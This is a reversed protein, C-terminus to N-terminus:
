NIKHLGAGGQRHHQLKGPYNPTQSVPHTGTYTLPKQYREGLTRSTEGIYEEGCDIAPCQDVTSVEMFYELAEWLAISWINLSRSSDTDLWLNQHPIYQCFM